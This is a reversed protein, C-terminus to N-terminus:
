IYISDMVEFHTFINTMNRAMSKRLKLECKCEMQTSVGKWKHGNRCTAKAQTMM